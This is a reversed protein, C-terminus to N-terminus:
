NEKIIDIKVDTEVFDTLKEAVIVLPINKSTNYLNGNKKNKIKMGKDSYIKYCDTYGNNFREIIRIM